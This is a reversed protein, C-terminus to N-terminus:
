RKPFTTTTQYDAPVEFLLPDPDGLRLDETTQSELLIGYRFTQAKIIHCSLSRAVLIETTLGTPLSISIRQLEVGQIKGAAKDVSIVADVLNRFRQECSDPSGFQPRGYPSSVASRTKPTVLVIRHKVVDIIQRTGGSTPDLDVSVTSGERNMAFLFRSETAPQNDAESHRSVETVTFPNIPQAFASLGTFLLVAFSQM